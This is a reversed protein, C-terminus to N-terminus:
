PIPFLPFSFDVEIRVSPVAVKLFPYSVLEYDASGAPSVLTAGRFPSNYLERFPGFLLTSVTYSVRAFVIGV